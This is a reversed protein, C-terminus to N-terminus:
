KQSSNKVYNKIIELVLRGTYEMDNISVSERVTHVDKMGTGLVGLCIGNQFFINADSGGGTTVPKISQGLNKAAKEVLKVLKHDHAINTMPFDNDYYIEMFAKGYCGQIPKFELAANNFADIIRNTVMALKEKCHSRIEGKVTVLDPVINTATGGAIIGINCTTEHDIRGWFLNNIARSACAIANIGLEPCAGAHAGMGHVTFTFSNAGPARIVVSKTDFTDLVYGFKSKIQSFDLNKAGLLGIEECVTFVIELPPCDIEKEVIVRLVEIIVAIASKDDAGLVTTGDTTFVGNEYKVKVGNGPSITDMHASLLMPPADCNGKFRVILNGTNSKTNETTSDIFFECGLPSLTEKIFLAVDKENRSESDIKVLDQFIDALRNKNIM